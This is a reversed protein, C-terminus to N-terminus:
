EGDTVPVDLPQAFGRVFPIEFDPILLLVWRIRKTPGPEYKEPEFPFFSIAGTEM